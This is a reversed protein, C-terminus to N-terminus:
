SPVVLYSFRVAPAAVTVKVEVAECVVLLTVLPNMSDWFVVVNFQDDTDFATVAEATATLVVVTAAAQTLVGVWEAVAVIARAVVALLAPKVLM